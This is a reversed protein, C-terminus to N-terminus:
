NENNKNSNTRPKVTITKSNALSTYVNERDVNKTTLVGLAHLKDDKKEKRFKNM